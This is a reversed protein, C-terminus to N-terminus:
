KLNSIVDLNNINIKKYKILNSISVIEYGMENLSPILKKTAEITEPYIDHMLVICGDCANKIVNNYIKESDRVLWDKTDINWLVIKYGLSKIKDNYRGYPPRLYKINNSTIQNYIINISNIENNLEDNSLSVLDKHSYSHSGIESNSNEIELVVDKNYKMRNGIMFFTATSNNLELTKLLDSTYESPGDDYTFAIYKKNENTDINYSSVNQNLIISVNPIYDINDFKLNNFYVDIKDENIIYTFNNITEKKIKDYIDKSYKYYVLDNIESSLYEEDFISSIYSLKGEKLDILINKNKIDTLTNSINFTINVFNKIYYLEYNIDLKKNKTKNNRFDTIYSYLINTIINNVKDNKFRPYEVYVNSDEDNFEIISTEVFKYEKTKEKYFLNVILFLVILLIFNLILFIFFNKKYKIFIM